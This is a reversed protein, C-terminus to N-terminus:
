GGMGYVAKRDGTNDDKETRHINGQLRQWAIIWIQIALCRVLFIAIYRWTAMPREKTGICELRTRCGLKDLGLEDM